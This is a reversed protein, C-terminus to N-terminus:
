IRPNIDCFAYIGSPDDLQFFPKLYSMAASQLRIFLSSEASKRNSFMGSTFYNFIQDKVSRQPEIYVASYDPASLGALEASAIIADNLNGIKDVLGLFKATKGDYVRGKALATVKRPPIDRGNSVIKLFKEYNYEVSQQIAASLAPPLPQTVNLGAALPTTGVGDSYIGLKALSEEFTPIAGFIGISGTITSNQAWIQDADAALWYGGSAAVTGMSVVVPKGGKKFDLIEQRIIESAFASGGGSVVRIVLAEVRKDKKAKRIQKSLTAGGIVGTPQKGPLITGEAIIIAVRKDTDPNTYSQKVNRFFQSSTVIKPMKGSNSTLSLLHSRVQQRTWVHDVLGSNLALKAADGHVANLSESINNTYNLLQSPNINRNEIIKSTFINWLASLWLENQQRDEESMDTRTFPELASKYSGVKFINYNVKLKDIAEKFYLRYVGMGHIDVGGMTNVIITDAYSALFYQSQRYYDEAAIVPKGSKKFENLADGITELQNLGARGMNKLNLLLVRINDDSAASNIIDLVDQLSTEPENGEGFIPDEFLREFSSLMKKQEVINGSINLQLVSDKSLVPLEKQDISVLSLVVLIFLGFFLLNFFTNRIFTFIKGLYSFFTFIWHFITKM